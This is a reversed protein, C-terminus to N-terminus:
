FFLNLMAFASKRPEKNGNSEFTGQGAQLIIETHTYLHMQVGLSPQMLTSSFGSETKAYEYAIYPSIGKGLEWGSELYGLTEKVTNENALTTNKVDVEFITYGKKAYGSQVYFATADTKEVEDTEMNIHSVGIRQSGLKYAITSVFGTHDELETDESGELYALTLDFTESFYTGQFIHPEQDHNFFVGKRTPINHNYHYIGYEPFFKGMRIAYELEVKGVWYRRVFMEEPNEEMSDLRFGVTALAQWGNKVFGGEFDLQMLRDHAKEAQPTDFYAQVARAMAMGVFTIDEEPSIIWPMASSSDNLTGFLEGAIFKGYSTLVGGGTPNYHCTVCTTYGHKAATPYALVRNEFVLTFFFVVAATLGSVKWLKM